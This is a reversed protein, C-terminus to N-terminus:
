PDHYSVSEARSHEGPTPSCESRGGRGLERGFYLRAGELERAAWCAHGACSDATSTVICNYRRTGREQFGNSISVHVKRPAAPVNPTIQPVSALCFPARQVM